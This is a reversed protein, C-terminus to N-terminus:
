RRWRGDADEDRELANVPESLKHPDTAPEVGVCWGELVVLKPPEGIAPWLAADYRDDRSKDFRPIRVPREPSAKTLADLTSALLALDHTGPVGRTRLLPHLNVALAEREVRTLYVDDISLSVAGWGRERAVDILGRALTSKGSGQLGSIGLVFPHEARQVASGFRALVTTALTSADTSEM